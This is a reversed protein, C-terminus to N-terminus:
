RLPRYKIKILMGLEPGARCDFSLWGLTYCALRQAHSLVFGRASEQALDFPGSFLSSSRCGLISRDQIREGSPSTYTACGADSGRRAHRYIELALIM